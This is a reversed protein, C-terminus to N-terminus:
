YGPKLLRRTAKCKESEIISIYEHYDREAMLNFVPNKSRVRWLLKASNVKCIAQDYINQDGIEGEPVFVMSNKPYWWKIGDTRKREFLLEKLQITKVLHHQYGANSFKRIWYQFSKENVHTPNKDLDQFETAAGFVVNAPRHHTLIKVFHDAYQEALHEAVEFTCVMETPPIEDFATFSTLDRVLYSERHAEPWLKRASESGEIGNSPVGLHRFAEVLFGHGCGVDLVSETEEGCVELITRALALYFSNDHQSFFSETYTDKLQNELTPNKM